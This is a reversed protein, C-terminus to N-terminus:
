KEPHHVRPGVSRGCVPGARVSIGGLAWIRSIGGDSHQHEVQLFFGIREDAQLLVIALHDPPDCKIYVLTSHEVATLTFGTM